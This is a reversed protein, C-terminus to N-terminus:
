ATGEGRLTKRIPGNNRIDRTVIEVVMKDVDIRPTGAQTAEQPTGENRIVVEVNPMGGTSNMANLAPTGISRAMSKRIVFEGPELMAPVRDRMQGGAAMQRVIGGSAFPLLESLFSFIGPSDSGSGFIAGGVNGLISQGIGVIGQFAGKFINFLNSGFNGSNSLINDFADRILTGARSTNDAGAEIQRGFFNISKAADEAINGVKNIESELPPGSGGEHTRPDTDLRGRRSEAGGRTWPEPDYKVPEYDGEFCDCLKKNSMENPGKVAEVIKVRVANGGRSPTITSDILPAAAGFFFEKVADKLPNIITEEFITEQIDELIGIFLDQLGEKFNQTTLTGERMARSLDTLASGLREGIQISIKQLVQLAKDSKLRDELSKNLLNASAAQLDDRTSRLQAQRSETEELAAADIEKNKDELILRNKELELNLRKIVVSNIAIEAKRRKVLDKLKLKSADIEIRLLKQASERAKQARKENLIRVEEQTKFIGTAQVPPQGPAGAVRATGLRLQAKAAADILPQIAAAGGIAGISSKTAIGKAGPLIQKLSEVHADLAKAVAEPHAALVKAEEVILDFKLKQLKLGAIAEEHRAENQQLAIKEQDELVKERLVKEAALETKRAIARKIEDDKDATQFALVDKDHQIQEKVIEFELNARNKQEIVIEKQKKEFEKLAAEQKNFIDRLADVNEQAIQIEIQRGQRETFLGPLAGMVVQQQTLGAIAVDRQRNRQEEFIATQRDLLAIERNLANERINSRELELDRGAKELNLRAKAVDFIEKTTALQSKLFNDKEKNLAKEIKLSSQTDQLVAQLKLLAVQNRLKREQKDLSKEIKDVAKGIKEYSGVIADLAVGRLEDGKKTKAIQKATNTLIKLNNRRIDEERFLLTVNGKLTDQDIFRGIVRGAKTASGFTADFAKKLLEIAGITKAVQEAGNILDLFFQRVMPAGDEDITIGVTEFIDRLGKLKKTANSASLAGSAAAKNFQLYQAIFAGIGTDKEVEGIGFVKSLDVPPIEFQNIVDEFVKKFDESVSLTLKEKDIKIASELLLGGTGTQKQVAEFMAELAKKAAIDIKSSIPVEILYDILAGRAEPNSKEFSSSMASVVKKATRATEEETPVFEGGGALRGGPMRAMHETVKMMKEMETRGEKMAAAMDLDPSFWGREIKVDKFKKMISQQKEFSGSLRDIARAAAISAEEAAKIDRSYNTFFDQIDDGISKFLDVGFIKAIGSSFLELSSLVIGFIGIFRFAGTILKGAFAASKGLIGFARAAFLAAGGTADIAAQARRAADAAGPMGQNAQYKLVKQLKLLELTTLTSSKGLNIIERAAKQTSRTGHVTNMKLLGLEKNLKTMEISSQSASRQLRLSLADGFGSIAGAAGAIKQQVVEGLKSFIVGALIGFAALTNTFNGSIFDAFPVLTQALIAGFKQGLDSIQASLREFSAVSGEITPDIASFKQEGQELAANLFAQSREFQTLSGASKGLKDAYKAVATDLRIFIGLEDLIEPEIKATGRTLRTLADPLNRGLAISAKLAVTTLREFQKTDFGASLAINANQAAEAITLQGRTIEKVKDIIEDGSKGIEAALARTGQITQEAQAAKSLASFAMTIAFINAAAGAYASVLGGLGSAQSSFQRGASASAQGLRTQARGVSELGKTAGKTDAEVKIKVKTTKSAM